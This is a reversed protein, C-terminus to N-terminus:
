VRAITTSVLSRIFQEEHHPAKGYIALEAAQFADGLRVTFDAWMVLDATSLWFLGKNDNFNNRVGQATQVMQRGLDEDLTPVRNLLVKLEDEPTLLDVRRILLRRALAPSLERVGPYLEPPNMTGYLRFNEHPRIIFDPHEPPLDTITVFGEDLYEHLMILVEPVVANIEQFGIAIGHKMAFPLIGPRFQMTGDEVWIKGVLTDVDVQGHGPVSHYPWGAEQHLRQLLATKAVGTHGVLVLPVGTEMTMAVATRENAMNIIDEAGDPVFRAAVSDIEAPPKPLPRIAAMNGGRALNPDKGSGPPESGPNGVSTNYVKASARDLVQKYVKHHETMSLGATSLAAVDAPTLTERLKCTPCSVYAGTYDQNLNIVHHDCTTM